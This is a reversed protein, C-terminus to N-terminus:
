EFTRQKVPYSLYEEYDETKKIDNDMEQISQSLFDIHQIQLKLMQMQHAGVSGKLAKKLIAIKDILKGKALNSLYEPDTKGDILAHLIAMGSAGSIDSIVSALKINAGELVAQIRNLERELILKIGATPQMVADECKDEIFVLNNLKEQKAYEEVKRIQEKAEEATMNRKNIYAINVLINGDADRENFNNGIVRIKTSNKSINNKM